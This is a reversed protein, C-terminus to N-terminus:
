MCCRPVAKSFHNKSAEIEKEKIQVGKLFGKLVIKQKPKNQQMVMIKLENLENEIASLKKEIQAM